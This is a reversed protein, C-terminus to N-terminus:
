KSERTNIQIEGLFITGKIKSTRNRNDRKSKEPYKKQSLSFRLNSKTCLIKSSRLAPNTSSLTQPNQASSKSNFVSVKKFIFMM